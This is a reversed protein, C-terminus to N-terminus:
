EYSGNDDAQLGNLPVFRLDVLFSANIQVRCPQHKCLVSEKHDKGFIKIIKEAAFSATQGRIFIPSSGCFDVEDPDSFCILIWLYVSFFAIILFDNYGANLSTRCVYSLKSVTLVNPIKSLQDSILPPWLQLNLHTKVLMFIPCFAASISIFKKNQHM